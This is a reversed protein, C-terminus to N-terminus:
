DREYGLESLMKRQLDFMVGEDSDPDHDFGLLHLIGHLTLFAIERDISHGYRKAQEIAIEECIYIEGLIICGSEPNISSLPNKAIADWDHKGEYESFDVAQFSLVDTPKDAGRSHKNLVRIEEKSLFGIEVETKDEPVSFRSLAHNAVDIVIDAYIGCDFVNLM